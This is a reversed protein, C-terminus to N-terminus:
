PLVPLLTDTLPSSGMENVHTVFRFILGASAGGLLQGLVYLLPPLTYLAELKSLVASSLVIAPNFIAGSLPGFAYGAAIVCGGVVFPGFDSKQDKSMMMVLMAFCILFSGYFEAFMAQWVSYSKTADGETFTGPQIPAVPWVGSTPAEGLWVLITLGTGAAAGILQFVLYKLTEKQSLQFDVLRKIEGKIESCKGSDDIGCKTGYFRFFYTVTIAPNFLGGSCDSLAYMVSIYAAANSWIKGAAGGSMEAAIQNLTITLAVFLSGTLESVDEPDFTVSQVAKTLFGRTLEEDEGVGEGKRIIHYLVVALIAGAVQAAVYIPLMVSKLNTGMLQVGLAVAPNYAAGSVYKGGVGGAIFVFGVALGSFEARNRALNVNLYVFCLLCTYLMEVIPAGLLFGADHPEIINADSNWGYLFLTAAGAAAGGALQAVIMKLGETRALKQQLVMAVSVAPNLLGGSVDKLIYSMAAYVFAISTPGFVALDPNSAGASYNSCVVFVVLFSGLFEAALKRQDEALAPM